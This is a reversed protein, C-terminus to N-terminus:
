LTRYYKWNQKDSRCSCIGVIERVFDGFCEGQFVDRSRCCYGRRAGGFASRSLKTGQVILCVEDKPPLRVVLLLNSVYMSGAALAVGFLLM